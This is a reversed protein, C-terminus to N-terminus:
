IICGELIDELASKLQCSYSEISHTRRTNKFCKYSKAMLDNENEYLVKNITEDISDIDISPILYGFDKIKIGANKTVIPIMGQAMLNVVSGSEGESCSPFIAFLSKRMLSLFLESKLNVFGHTHINPSEYLERYYLNKFRPENDIPGCVHLHLNPHQHFYELVLDLGKHILGSSGFWIFNYKAESYDKNVIFSEVKKVDIINYYTVPINYIDGDFFMRYSKLVEDNGLTIIADVISTQISWAKEVIRGSEPLWKKKKYYVEKIRSLSNHNQWCIHMGTGYYITVIDHDRNYFSGVFPDGFGFVVSYKSYDITREFNYNYIDVNFGLDRFTEAIKIAEIYNTHRYNPAKSKFPPVIYSVLVNKENNSNYYNIIPKYKYFLYVKKISSPLINKITKKLM